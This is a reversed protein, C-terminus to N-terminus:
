RTRDDALPLLHGPGGLLHEEGAHHGVAAVQVQCAHGVGGPVHRLGRQFVRDVPVEREVIQM